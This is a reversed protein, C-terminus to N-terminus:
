GQGLQLDFLKGFGPKAPLVWQGPQFSSAVSTGVRIIQAVGENGGVAGFDPIFTPQRPYVGEIQNLDSPNVPAALFRVEIEDHKPEKRSYRKISYVLYSIAVFYSPSLKFLLRKFTNFLIQM